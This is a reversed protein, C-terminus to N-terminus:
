GSCQELYRHGAYADLVIKLNYCLVRYDDKIRAMSIFPIVLHLSAIIDIQILWKYSIGQVFNTRHPWDISKM